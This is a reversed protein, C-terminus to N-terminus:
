KDISLKRNIIKYTNCTFDLGTNSNSFREGTSSMQQQLASIESLKQSESVCATLVNLFHFLTHRQDKGLLGRFCYKLVGHTAIQFHRLYVNKLRYMSLFGSFITKLIYNHIIVQKWDHSKMRSTRSFQHKPNFDLYAPVEIHEIREKALKLEESLLQFPLPQCASTSNADLSFRCVAAEAARLKLDGDKKIVISFIKEVVDKITHMADPVTQHLPEHHPLKM